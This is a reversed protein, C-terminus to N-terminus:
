RLDSLFSSLIFFSLLGFIFRRLFARETNTSVLAYEPLKLFGIDQDTPPPQYFLGRRSVRLPDGPIYPSFRTEGEKRPRHLFLVARMKKSWKPVARSFIHFKPVAEKQQM